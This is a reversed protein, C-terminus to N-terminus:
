LTLIKERVVKSITCASSLTYCERVGAVPDTAICIVRRGVEILGSFTKLSVNEPFLWIVTDVCSLHYRKCAHLVEESSREFFILHEAVKYNWLDRQLTLIEERYDASTTFRILDVPIAVNGPRRKGACEIPELLTKAGWVLRLLREASLHQYVRSVTAPSIGFREAVARVPYFPHSRDNQCEAATQRLLKLLLAAKTESRSQEIILEDLAPLGLRRLGRGCQSNRKM